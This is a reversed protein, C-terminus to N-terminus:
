NLARALTLVAVEEAGANLLIKACERVTTGTTYVDDVLIVKKHALEGKKEVVFVGKVNPGRDQRGLSVQPLTNVNRKLLATKMPISFRLSIERGLLVAQNFGRQRLRKPHLPVPIILDYNDSKFSPRIHSAMLRGLAKGSILDQSYKFRHISELLISEYVGVSRAATFYQKDKICQGCLHNEGSQSKFPLGCCTCFPAQIFNIESYCKGCFPIDDSTKLLLGCGVCTPPFVLDAIGALFEHM